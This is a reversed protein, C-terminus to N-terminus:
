RVMVESLTTVFVEFKSPILITWKVGATGQKGPGKFYSVMHSHNTGSPEEHTTVMLFPYSLHKHDGFNVDHQELLM